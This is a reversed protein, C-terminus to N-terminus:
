LAVMTTGCIGGLLVLRGLLPRGCFKSMHALGRPAVILAMRCLGKDTGSWWMRAGGSFLWHTDYSLAGILAMGCLGRILVLSCLGVYTGSWWMRTLGSFLWRTGSSIAGMLAM